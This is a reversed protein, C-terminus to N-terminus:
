NVKISQEIKIKPLPLSFFFESGKGKESVVWIKGRHRKVIEKSIYLGMGLGPYTKEGPSNIQYLREFIKKHQSKPIGIGYDRVSVVIDHPAKQLSIEIKKGKPSYKIANTLLNTMVQYIRFKDAHIMIPTEDPFVLKHDKTTAQLTEICDKLLEDMRFDTKQFNLKGTQIRSVDLLDNVLEQLRESQEKISSLVHLSKDDKSEHARSLLVDIYLKMSTIPTKLEHSAMNIFDDKRQELEKEFTIDYLTSVAAVIQRHKNKIPAANVRLFIKKKDERVFEMEQSNVVEGQTMARVIPWEEPALQKNSSLVDTRFYKKNFRFRKSINRGLIEQIRNNGSIIKGNADVLLVGVPLQQLIAKLRLQEEEALQRGKREGLVLVDVTDKLWGICLSLGFLIFAMLIVNRIDDFSYHHPLPSLFIFIVYIETIFATLLDAYLGSRLGIYAILAISVIILYVATESSNKIFNFAIFEYLALIIITIGLSFWFSPTEGTGFNHFPNLYDISRLIINRNKGKM